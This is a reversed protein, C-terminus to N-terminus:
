FDDEYDYDDIFNKIVKKYERPYHVKMYMEWWAMLTYSLAHSKNFAYGAFPILIEFIEVAQKETVIGKQVAGSVFDEKRNMLVDPKKKGLARRFMDAAGLTYGAINQAIQMIQEQYVPLGYSENLINRCGPFDYRNRCGEKTEIITPIYDMPGPRYMTNMLVLDSFVEPKFQKLIKKMGSSEFQFVDTTSGKAFAEITSEDELPISKYDFEVKENTAIEDSLLKLKTLQKLGLLDNKYLGVFELSDFTYESYLWGSKEDKLVPVYQSASNNTVIYGSAHLGKNCKVSELYCAIKILKENKKDRFFGQLKVGDWHPIIDNDYINSRSDLLRSLSLRPNYNNVIITKIKEIEEDAYNLYKGAIKLSQWCKLRGYSIIRIVSGSGYKEKLHNIVEDLREYDYDIDFDPYCLRLPSLFREYLLGHKLPNVNTIELLYSVLSGPASGRGPGHEIGNQSCWSVLEHHLLFVKEWHHSVIDNVEYELRAIATNIDEFENAKSELGEYGLARLTQEANDFEPLSDLLREHAEPTTFYNEPFIFSIQEEIHHLNELLEPYDIKELFPLIETGDIFYHKSKIEEPNKLYLRMAALADSDEKEIFRIPSTIVCKTTDLKEAIEPHAELDSFDIQTYLNDSFLDQLGKDSYLATCVFHSAENKTLSLETVTIPCNNAEQIDLSHRCLIKYAEFDKCLLNVENNGFAIKQGVIPKINNHKCLLYFEIVGSLTRDTLALAKMNLSKAKKVLDPIRAISEGISFDSMIDLPIYKSEPTGEPCDFSYIDM